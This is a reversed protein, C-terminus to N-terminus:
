YQGVFHRQKQSMSRKWLQEVKLFEKQEQLACHFTCIEQCQQRLSPFDLLLVQFKSSPGTLNSQPPCKEVQFNNFYHLLCM